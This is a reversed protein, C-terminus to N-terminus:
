NVFSFYQVLKVLTLVKYVEVNVGRLVVRVTKDKATNALLKMARAISPDIRVISSFDLVIEEEAIDLKYRADDICQVFREGDVRLMGALVAM